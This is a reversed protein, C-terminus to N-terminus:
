SGARVARVYNITWDKLQAYVVGDKFGVVWASDPSTAYTTALWYSRASTPGFVPDICPSTGCPYSDLLITQLEVITPLRWDCHGAFCGTLTVGDISGGNLKPLFDAFATGNPTTGGFTTNWYHMHDVDHPDALNVGSGVTTTKQKWQLGTEHDTVTGDLNDEFRNGAVLAAVTDTYANIQGKIISDAAPCSASAAVAKDELKQWADSFKSECKDLAETYKSPDGGTALKAEANERCPAYKGATKSKGSKCAQEPTTAAQVATVALLLTGAVLAAVVLRPYVRAVLTLHKQIIRTM